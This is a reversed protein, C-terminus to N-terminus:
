PSRHQRASLPVTGEEVVKAQWDALAIDPHRDGSLPEPEPRARCATSLNVVLATLASSAAAFAMNGPSQAVQKCAPHAHERRLATVSLARRAGLTSLAALGCNRTM